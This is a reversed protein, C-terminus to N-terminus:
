KQQLYDSDSITNKNSNGEEIMWQVKDLEDDEIALRLMQNDKENALTEIDSFGSKRLMWKLTELDSSQLIIIVDPNTKLDAMRAGGKNVLLKLITQNLKLVGVATRGSNDTAHVDIRRDDLILDVMSKRGYKTALILINSGEEDKTTLVVDPFQTMLWTMTEVLNNKAAFLAATSVIEIKSSEVDMDVFDKVIDLYTQDNFRKETM